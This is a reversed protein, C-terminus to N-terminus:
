AEAAKNRLLEGIAKAAEIGASIIGDRGCDGTALVLLVLGNAGPVIVATSDGFRLTHHNVAAGGFEQALREGILALSSVMAGLVARDIEGINADYLVDSQGSSAVVACGKVGAIQALPQILEELRYIKGM